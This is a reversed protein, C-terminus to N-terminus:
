DRFTITFTSGKDIVSEVKIKGGLSSVHNYVLYLGIGKSDTYDHFTQHLGFLRHHMKDMDFGRGNDSFILHKGNSDQKSTISIMPLDDPRAYKISNTILNLLISDMYAKNFTVSELASFDTQIKAKSIQILSNISEQVYDLSQQFFVDELNDHTAHKDSLVDVYKNLTEKLQNAAHRVVRILELTEQDDIKTNDILNFLSILNNVPSRLDHSATFTLQKLDRNATTLNALLSNREAELQKKHTINKAVAFVLKDAEVPLSTWSLWVVEGSKTVYRNEFHHLPKAKILEARVQTTIGRDEEHIFTNIPQSYLEEFTYGLLQSVAPNVKKFFGDFGAVCLLDPTLDFFREYQFNETTM